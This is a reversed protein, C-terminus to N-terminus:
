YQEIRILSWRLSELSYLRRFPIDPPSHIEAAGSSINMDKTEPRPRQTVAKLINVTIEPTVLDKFRSVVLQEALASGVSFDRSIDKQMDLPM